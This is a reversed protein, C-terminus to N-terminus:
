IPEGYYDRGMFLLDKKRVREGLIYLFTVYTHKKSYKKKDMHSLKGVITKEEGFEPLTCLQNSCM